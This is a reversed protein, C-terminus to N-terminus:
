IISSYIVCKCLSLNDDECHMISEKTLKLSGDESSPELGLLLAEDELRPDVSDGRVSFYAKPVVVCRERGKRWYFRTPTGIARHYHM